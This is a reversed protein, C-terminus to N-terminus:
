PAPAEPVLAVTCSLAWDQGGGNIAGQVEPGPAELPRVAEGEEAIVELQGSLGLVGGVRTPTLVAVFHVAQGAADAQTSEITAPRGMLTTIKPRAVVTGGASVTCALAVPPGGGDTPALLMWALFMASMPVEAGTM